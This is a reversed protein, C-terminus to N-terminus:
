IDLDFWNKNSIVSCGLRGFYGEPLIHEKIIQFEEKFVFPRGKVRTLFEGKEGLKRETFKLVKNYGPYGNPCKNTGHLESKTGGKPIFLVSDQEFEEGFRKLDKLLKGNNEKDFVFFVTEGVEKANEKGYNEIYSGKVTVVGYRKSQLKALLSKNRQLNEKKTYRDGDGCESAYRFATITGTDYNKMHQQIRSLSSENIEM